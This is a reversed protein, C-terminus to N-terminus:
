FPGKTYGNAPSLEHIWCTCNETCERVLNGCCGCCQVGFRSLTCSCGQAITCDQNCAVSSVDCEQNRARSFFRSGFRNPPSSSSSSLFFFFFFFFRPFLLVRCSEAGCREQIWAITVVSPFLSTSSVPSVSPAAATSRKRM